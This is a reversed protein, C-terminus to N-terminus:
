SYLRTRGFRNRLSHYIQRLGHVWRPGFSVREGFPDFRADMQAEDGLLMM